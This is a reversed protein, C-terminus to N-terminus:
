FPYAAICSKRVWCFQIVCFIYLIWGIIIMASVIIIMKWVDIQSYDYLTNEQIHESLCM